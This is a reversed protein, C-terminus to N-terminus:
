NEDASASVNSSGSDERHHFIGSITGKGILEFKYEAAQEVKITNKCEQMQNYM